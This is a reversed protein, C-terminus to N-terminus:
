LKAKGFHGKRVLQHADNQQFLDVAAVPDYVAFWIM